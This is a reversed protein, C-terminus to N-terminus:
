DDDLQALDGALGSSVRGRLLALSLWVLYAGGLAALVLHAWVDGDAVEYARYLEHPSFMSRRQDLLALATHGAIWGVGGIVAVGLLPILWVSALAFCLTFLPAFPDIEVPHPLTFLPLTAAVVLASRLLLGGVPSRRASTPAPHRAMGHRVREAAAEYHEPPCFLIMVTRWSNGLAIAHLRPYFRAKVIGRWAARQDATSKAILGTGVAGPRGTLAGLLITAKAVKDARRDITEARAGRRDLTFRMSMRNRYILAMGLVGVGFLAFSIGGSIALMMPIADPSGSVAMLFSLFAGMILATLGFVKAYSALLLPNTAVPVDIEWQLPQETGGKKAKAGDTM